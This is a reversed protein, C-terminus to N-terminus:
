RRIRVDLRPPRAVGTQEEIRDLLSESLHRVQTAWAPHDVTVVLSEADLRYPQVHEAVAPGVIEEWRSFVTGLGKSDQLGLQRSVSDLSHELPRPGPDEGSRRRRGAASV